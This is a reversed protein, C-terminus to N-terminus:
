MTGYMCSNMDPARLPFLVVSRAPQPRALPLDPVLSYTCLIALRSAHYGRAREVVDCMATRSGSNSSPRGGECACMPLSRRNPLELLFDGALADCERKGRRRALDQRSVTPFRSERHRACPAGHWPVSDWIERCPPARADRALENRSARPVIDICGAM